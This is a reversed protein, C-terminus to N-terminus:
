GLVDGILHADLTTMSLEGTPRLLDIIESIWPWSGYADQGNDWKGPMHRSHTNLGDSGDKKLVVGSVEVDYNNSVGWSGDCWTYKITGREIRVKKPTRAYAMGVVPHDETIKFIRTIEVRTNQTTVRM